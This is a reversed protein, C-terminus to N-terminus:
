QLLLNLNELTKPLPNVCVDPFPSGFDGNKKAIGVKFAADLDSIRGYLKILISAEPQMGSSTVGCSKSVSKKPSLVPTITYTFCPHLSPFKCFFFLHEWFESKGIGPM